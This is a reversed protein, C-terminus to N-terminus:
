GSYGVGGRDGVLLFDDVYLCLFVTGSDMTRYLLCPDVPSCTFNLEEVLFAIIDKWWQRSAQVLGYLSKALLLCKGAAEEGTCETFGSTPPKMYIEEERLIRHLFATEVDIVQTTGSM